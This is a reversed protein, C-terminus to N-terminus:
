TKERNALVREIRRDPVLWLLAVFIYLSGAIWPNVFALPIAAVYLVPLLKGKPRRLWPPVAGEITMEVGCEAPNFEAIRRISFGRWLHIQREGFSGKRTPSLGAAFRWLGGAWLHFL